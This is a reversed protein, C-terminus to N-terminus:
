YQVLPQWYQKIFTEMDKYKVVAARDSAHAWGPAFCLAEDASEAKFGTGVQTSPKHVTCYEVGKMNSHQVYGIRVDDPTFWAYTTLPAPGYVKFGREKLQDIVVQISM